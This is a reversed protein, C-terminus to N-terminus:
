RGLAVGRPPGDMLDVEDGEIRVWVTTDGPWPAGDALSQVADATRGPYTTRLTLEFRRAIDRTEATSRLVLLKSVPPVPGDGVIESSGISAVKEASWRIQQELRPVSSMFESVVLLQTDLREFVGDVVGRVPRWVPVELHPRWVPALRALVAEVM